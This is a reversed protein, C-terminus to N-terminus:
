YKQMIKSSKVSNLGRTIASQMETKAGTNSDISRLFYSTYTDRLLHNKIETATNRIM